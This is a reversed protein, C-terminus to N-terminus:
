ARTLRRWAEAYKEATKAVVDDPLAPGPATKDWDLTELYDR